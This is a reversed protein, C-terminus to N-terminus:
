TNTKLRFDLEIVKKELQEIKKQQVIYGSWFYGAVLAVVILLLTLGRIVFNPSVPQHM